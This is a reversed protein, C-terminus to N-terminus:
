DQQKGAHSASAALGIRRQLLSFFMSGALVALAILLILGLGQLPGPQRNRLKQELM